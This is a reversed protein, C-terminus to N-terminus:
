QEGFFQLSTYNQKQVAAVMINQLIHHDEKGVKNLFFDFNDSILNHWCLMVKVFIKKLGKKANLMTVAGNKKVHFTKQYFLM